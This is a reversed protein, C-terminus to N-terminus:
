VRAHRCSKRNQNEHPFKTDDMRESGSGYGVTITANTSPHHAINDHSLHHVIDLTEQLLVVVRKM